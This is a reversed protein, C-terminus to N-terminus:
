CLSIKESKANLLDNAFGHILFAELNDIMGPDIDYASFYCAIDYLRVPTTKLQRFKHHGPRFEQNRNPHNSLKITQWDDRPRNFALNMERWLSKNSKGVYIARGLSDYFIYIGKSKKLSEELGKLYKSGTKIIQWSTSPKNADVKFFEVIPWITELQSNKIAVDRSKVIAKAFLTPTLPLFNQKDWKRLTSVSVGLADALDDLSDTDLRKRLEDLLPKVEM